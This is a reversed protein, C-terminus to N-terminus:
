QKYGRGMHVFQLKEYFPYADSIALNSVLHIKYAGTAKAIEMAQQVLRTEM